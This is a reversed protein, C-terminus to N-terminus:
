SLGAIIKQCNLLYYIYQVTYLDAIQQIFRATNRGCDESLSFPTEPFPLLVYQGVKAGFLFSWVKGKIFHCVHVENPLTACMSYIVWSLLSHSNYFNHRSKFLYFLVKHVFLCTFDIKRLRYEHSMLKLENPFEM